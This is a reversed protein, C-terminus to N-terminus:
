DTHRLRLVVTGAVKDHLTQRKQDWLPFLMDLLWLVGLILTLVGLLRFVQELLARWFARGYGVMEATGERVARVGVAMMGVTQGRGGGVMVTAYGLFLLGDIFFSLLSFSRRTTGGRRAMFHVEMVHTHRFVIALVILVPVFIVLDILYGGLRTGWTALAANGPGGNSPTPDQWRPLAYGGGV